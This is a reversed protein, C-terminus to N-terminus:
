RNATMVRVVLWAFLWIGAFVLLAVVSIALQDEDIGSTAIRYAIIAAYALGIGRVARSMKGRFLAFRPGFLLVLLVVILIALVVASLKM